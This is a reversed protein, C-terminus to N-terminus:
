LSFKFKLKGDSTIQLMQKHHEDILQQSRRHKFIRRISARGTGFFIITLVITSQFYYAYPVFTPIGIDKVMGSKELFFINM